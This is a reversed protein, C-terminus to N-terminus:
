LTVDSPVFDKKYMVRIRSYKITQIREVLGLEIALPLIHNYFHRHSLNLETALHAMSDSWVKDPQQKVLEVLKLVHIMQKSYIHKPTITM